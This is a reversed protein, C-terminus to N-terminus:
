LLARIVWVILGVVCAVVTLPMMIMGTVFAIRKLAERYSPGASKILLWAWGVFFIVFITAGLAIGSFLRASFACAWVTGVVSGAIASQFVLMVYLAIKETIGGFGGYDDDSM